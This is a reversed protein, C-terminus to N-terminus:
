CFLCALLIYGSVHFYLVSLSWLPFPLPLPIVPSLHPLTLNLFMYLPGMSLSLPAPLPKFTPSFPHAPCPLTLPPFHPCSYSSSLLLLRASTCVTFRLCSIRSTQLLRSAVFITWTPLSTPVMLFSLSLPHCFTM